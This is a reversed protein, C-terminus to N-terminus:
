ATASLTISARMASRASALSRKKRSARAAARSRCVLTAETKERNAVAAILNAKASELDAKTQDLAGQFLAPDILAIVQGTHVRSNFDVNLKSITGSVQSGVLVTKVANVTGTLDVVDRIAGRDIKVTFYRAPSARRASVILFVLVVVAM